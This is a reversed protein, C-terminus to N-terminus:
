TRGNDTMEKKETDWPVEVPVADITEKKGILTTVARLIMCPENDNMSADEDYFMCPRIIKKDWQWGDKICPRNLFPCVPEIEVYRKM